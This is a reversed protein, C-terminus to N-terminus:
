WPIKWDFGYNVAVNSLRLTAHREFDSGRPQLITASGASYQEKKDAAERMKAPLVHGYTNMIV